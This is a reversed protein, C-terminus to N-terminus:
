FNKHFYIDENVEKLNFDEALEKLLKIQDHASHPTAPGIGTDRLFELHSIKAEVWLKLMLPNM